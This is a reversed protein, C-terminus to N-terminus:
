RGRVSDYHSRRHRARMSAAAAGSLQGPDQRPVHVRRWTAIRPDTSYAFTDAASLVIARVCVQSHASWHGEVFAHLDVGAGGRAAAHAAAGLHGDAAAYSPQQYRDDDHQEATIGALDQLLLTGLLSPRCPFLGLIEAM